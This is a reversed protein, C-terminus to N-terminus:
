KSNIYDIAKQLQLDIGQNYATGTEAVWIDPSIGRGEYFEGKLSKFAVSSTYVFMYGYNGFASSGITFQGGNLYTSPLLPGNAGWTTTGIFKGNPLTHIAEATLEAMSASTHDALVVIPKDFSFTTSQPTVIAPMWPTYDLRGVGSKTHTYGFTLPTSILSGVLYNLDVLEGGGNDRVDIIMGKYSASSMSNFFANLVPTTNKGAQSFAFLNMYLYLINNSVTGSIITYPTSTGDMAISDTGSLLSTQDIYNNSVINTFFDSPLEYISDSYIQDIAIKRNLAPSIQDGTLEFTLTYHSDILNATMETFYQEALINNKTSFSTLNAFIPKYKAYAHDWNVTDIDWFIYNNNMGNWFAEFLDSYNDGTYNQAANAPKIDEHCATVAIWVFFFLISKKQFFTKM